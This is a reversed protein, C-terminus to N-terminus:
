RWEKLPKLGNLKAWRDIIERHRGDPMRNFRGRAESISAGHPDISITVITRYLGGSEYRLSWIADVGSMCYRAYSGVCHQMRHGELHLEWSNTIEVIRFKGEPDAFPKITTSPAWKQAQLIAVRRHSAARYNKELEAQVGAESLELAELAAARQRRIAEMSQQIQLYHANASALLVETRRAQVKFDPQDRLLHHMFGLLRQGEEAFWYVDMRAFQRVTYEWVAEGAPPMFAPLERALDECAGLGLAWLYVGPRNMTALRTAVPLKAYARWTARSIGAERLFERVSKGAALHYFGPQGLAFDWPTHQKPDPIDMWVQLPVNRVVELFPTALYDAPLEEAEMHYALFFDFWVSFHEGTAQIVPGNTVLLKNLIAPYIRGVFDAAVDASFVELRYLCLRRAVQNQEESLYIAFDQLYEVYRRVAALPSRFFAGDAEQYAPLAAWAAALDALTEEELGAAALHILGRTHLATEPVPIAGGQFVLDFWDALLLRDAPRLLRELEGQSGDYRRYIVLLDEMLRSNVSACLGLRALVFRAENPFRSQETVALDAIRSPYVIMTEPTLRRSLAETPEVLQM